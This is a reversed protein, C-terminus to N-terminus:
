TIAVILVGGDTAGVGAAYNEALEAEGADFADIGVGVLSGFVNRHCLVGSALTAGTGNVGITIATGSCIFDNDRILLRDTAAGCLIVSAWSGASCSFVSNQIVGDLTATAVIADGQAGGSDFYCNQVLLKSAAGLAEIAITGTDAAPTAMDFHCDHIHLNDGDATFDIATLATIPVITLHAIEINAATVNIAEDGAPGTISARQKLFNGTGSPLGTLTVGATDMALSATTTHDGPLAVIVDGASTAANVAADLTVMAREPSLGDNEDSATYSRGEVTYDAAAAVWFVRGATQPISGWLSGYKTIFGM